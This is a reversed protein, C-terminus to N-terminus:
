FKSPVVILLPNRSIKIELLSDRKLNHEITDLAFKGEHGKYKIRFYDGEGAEKGEYPFIARFKFIKSKRSYPKFAFPWATSGTGTIIVLGSNKQTEKKIKGKVAFELTYKTMKSFNLNEGICIENLVRGFFNKNLFIDQRTWKESKYNGELIAKVAEEINRQCLTGKSRKDTKLNLQPTEKNYAATAIATGDGGASFVFDYSSVFNESLEERTVIEYDQNEKELIKEIKRINEAQEKDSGRLEPSKHNGNYYYELASMKRVVLIRM